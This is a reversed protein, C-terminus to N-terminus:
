TMDGFPGAWAVSSCNSTDSNFACSWLVCDVSSSESACCTQRLLILYLLCTTACGVVLVGDLVPSYKAMFAAPPDLPHQLPKLTHKCLFRTCIKIQLRLWGFLHRKCCRM